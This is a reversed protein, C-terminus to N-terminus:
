LDNDFIDKIPEGHMVSNIDLHYNNVNSPNPDLYLNITCGPYVQGTLKIEDSEFLKDNYRAVLLVKKGHPSTTHSFGVITVRYCKGHQLLFQRRKNEKIITTPFIILYLCTGIAIVVIFILGMNTTSIIKSPDEPDCYIKVIDGVHMTSNYENLRIDKYEVDDVVYTVYVIYKITHESTEDPNYDTEYEVDIRSITADIELASYKFGKFQITAFISAILFVVIITVPMVIGTIIINKKRTSHIKIDQNM